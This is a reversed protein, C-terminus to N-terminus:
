VDHAEGQNHPLPAEQFRKALNVVDDYHLQDHYVGLRLTVILNLFGFLPDFLYVHGLMAEDKGAYFARVQRHLDRLEAVLTALPIPRRPTHHPAWLFGVWMPFRGTRYLDPIETRYPRSRRRVGAWRFLRWALRVSPLTSAILLYNHNLIEGICWEKPAPRQWIQSEALGDLAAFATERQTDLLHLYEDIM